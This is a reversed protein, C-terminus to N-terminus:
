KQDLRVIQTLAAVRDGGLVHRLVVRGPLEQTVIDIGQGPDVSLHHEVTV